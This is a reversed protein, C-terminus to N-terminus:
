HQSSIRISPTQRTYGSTAQAQNAWSMILINWLKVFEAKM